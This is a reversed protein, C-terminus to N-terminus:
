RGWPEPCQNELMYKEAIAELPSQGEKIVIEERGPLSGFCYRDAM